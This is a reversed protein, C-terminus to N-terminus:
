DLWGFSAVPAYTGLDTLNKKDVIVVRGGLVKAAETAAADLKVRATDAWETLITAKARLAVGSGDYAWTVYKEMKGGPRSSLPRGVACTTYCVDHAVELGRGGERAGEPAHARGQDDRVRHRAHPALVRPHLAELAARGRRQAAM